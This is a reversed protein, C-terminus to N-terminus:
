LIVSEVMLKRELMTVTFGGKETTKVSQSDIIAASPTPERGEKIRVQERLYTHIKEWTGDIRFRRYYCHVTSWPPFENPLLRWACGSRNLYLIGNVVERIDTTRPRGGSKAKPVMPRIIDWQKDTLDTPYVRRKCTTKNM